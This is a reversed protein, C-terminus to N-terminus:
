WSGQYTEAESQSQEPQLKLRHNDLLRSVPSPDEHDSIWPSQVCFSDVFHQPVCACFNFAYEPPDKNIKKQHLPM